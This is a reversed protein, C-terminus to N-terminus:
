DESSYITVVSFGIGYVLHNMMVYRSAYQCTKGVAPFVEDSVSLKELAIIADTVLYRHYESMEELRRQLFTHLVGYTLGTETTTRIHYNLLSGLTVKVVIERHEM